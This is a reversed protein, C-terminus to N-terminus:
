RVIIVFPTKFVKGTEPGIASFAVFGGTATKPLYTKEEVFDWLGVLGNKLRVPQFKRAWARDQKIKLWYLRSKAFSDVTGNNNRAFVYLDKETDVSGGLDRQSIVTRSGADDDFTTVKQSGSMFEVRAHSKTGTPLGYANPNTNPNWDSVVATPDSKDPTWFSNAYGLGLAFETRHYWM